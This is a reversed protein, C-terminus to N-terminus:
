LERSLQFWGSLSTWRLKLKQDLDGANTRSISADVVRSSFYHIQGGLGARWEKPLIFDLQLWGTQGPNGDSGSSMSQTSATGQYSTNQTMKTENHLLDYCYGANLVLRNGPEITFGVGFLFGNWTLSFEGPSSTFTDLTPSLAEGNSFNLREFHGEYGILPTLIVKYTRGDTLNVAYGFYGSADATWGNPSFQFQPQIATGPIDSFTQFMEGTGFAGYAGRLFFTLDRHVAKFTLGNEWFQTNRDLQNYTLTSEDGPAQLHWHIRDNRYGSFWEIRLPQNVTAFLSPFFLLSFLLRLM